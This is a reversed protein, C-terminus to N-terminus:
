RGGRRRQTTVGSFDAKPDGEVLTLLKYKYRGIVPDLIYQTTAILFPTKSDGKVKTALM